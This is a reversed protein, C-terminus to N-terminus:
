NKILIDAFSKKGKYPYTYLARPKDQLSHTITVIEKGKGTGLIYFVRVRIM